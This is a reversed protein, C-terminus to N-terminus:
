NSKLRFDIFNFLYYTTIETDSPYFSWTKAILIQQKKRPTPAVM